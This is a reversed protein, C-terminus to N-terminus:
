VIIVKNKRRLCKIGKFLDELGWMCRYNLKKCITLIDQKYKGLDKANIQINLITGVGAFSFKNITKLDYLVEDFQDEDCDQMYIKVKKYRLRKLELYVKLMEEMSHFILGLVYQGKHTGNYAHPDNWLYYHEEDNLKKNTISPHLLVPDTTFAGFKEGEGEKYPPFIYRNSIIVGGNELETRRNPEKKNKM